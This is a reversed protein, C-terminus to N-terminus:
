SLAGCNKIYLFWFRQPNFIMKLREDWLFDGPCTMKRLISDLADINTAIVPEAFRDEQTLLELIVRNRVQNSFSADIRGDERIEDLDNNWVRLRAPIEKKIRAQVVATRRSLVSKANDMAESIGDSCSAPSLTGLRLLALFLNGLTLM